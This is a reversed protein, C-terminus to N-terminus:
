GAGRCAEPNDLEAFRHPALLARVIAEQATLTRRPNEGHLARSGPPGSPEM